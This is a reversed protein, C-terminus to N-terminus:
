NKQLRKLHELLITRTHPEKIWRTNLERWSRASIKGEKRLENLLAVFQRFEENPKEMKGLEQGIM